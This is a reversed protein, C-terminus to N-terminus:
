NRTAWKAYCLAPLGSIFTTHPFGLPSRHQRKTGGLQASKGLLAAIGAATGEELNPRAELISNNCLKANYRLAFFFFFFLFSPFFGVGRM